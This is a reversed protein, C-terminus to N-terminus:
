LPRKGRWQGDDPQPLHGGGAAHRWWAARVYWGDDNAERGMRQVDDENQDALPLHVILDSHRPGQAPVWPLDCSVISGLAVVCGRVLKGRGRAQKAKPKRRQARQRGAATHTSRKVARSGLHIRELNLISFTSVRPWTTYLALKYVSILASAPSSRSTRATVFCCVCPCATPRVYRVRPINSHACVCCDCSYSCLRREPSAAVCRKSRDGDEIWKYRMRWRLRNLYHDIKAVEALYRRIM